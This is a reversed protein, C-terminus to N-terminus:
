NFLWILYALLPLLGIMIHLCIGIEQSNRKTFGQSKDPVKFSAFKKSLGKWDATNKKVLDREMNGVLQWEARSAVTSYYFFQSALLTWFVL